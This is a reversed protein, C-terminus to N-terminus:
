KKLSNPIKPSYFGVMSYGVSAHAVRGFLYFFLNFLNKKM